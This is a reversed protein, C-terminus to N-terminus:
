GKKLNLLQKKMFSFHHEPFPDIKARRIVFKARHSGAQPRSCEKSMQNARRESELRRSEVSVSEYTRTLNNYKIHQNSKRKTHPCTLREKEMQYVYQNDYSRVSVLGSAVNEAKQNDSCIDVEQVGQEAEQQHHYSPIVVKQIHNRLQVIEDKDSTWLKKGKALLDIAREHHLLSDNLDIQVHNQLFMDWDIYRYKEHVGKPSYESPQIPPYEHLNIPLINDQTQARRLKIVHQAFISTARENKSGM